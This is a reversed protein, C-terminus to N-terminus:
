RPTWISITPTKVPETHIDIQKTGDAAKGLKFYTAHTIFHGVYHFVIPYTVQMGMSNHINMHIFKYTVRNLVNLNADDIFHKKAYSVILNMVDSDKLADETSIGDKIILKTLREKFNRFEANTYAMPHNFKYEEMPNANYHAKEKMIKNTKSNKDLIDTELETRLKKDIDTHFGITDAEVQKEVIDKSWGIDKVLGADTKVLKEKSSDM